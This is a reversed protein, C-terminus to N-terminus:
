ALIGSNEPVDTIDGREGTVSQGAFKKIRHLHVVEERSKAVPIEQLAHELRQKCIYNLPRQLLAM